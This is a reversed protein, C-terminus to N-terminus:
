HMRPGWDGSLNMQASAPVSALAFAVVSLLGVARFM